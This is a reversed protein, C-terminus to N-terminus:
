GDGDIAESNQYTIELNNGESPTGKKPTSAMRVRCGTYLVRLGHATVAELGFETRKSSMFEWANWAVNKLVLIREHVQYTERFSGCLGLYARGSRVHVFLDSKSGILASEIADVLREEDPTLTSM